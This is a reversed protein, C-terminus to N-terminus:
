SKPSGLPQLNKQTKLSILGSQNSDSIYRKKVFWKSQQIDFSKRIWLIAQRRLTIGTKNIKKCLFCVNVQKSSKTPAAWVRGRSYSPNNRAISNIGFSYFIALTVPLATQKVVGPWERNVPVSESTRWRKAYVKRYQWARFWQNKLSKKLHKGWLVSGSTYSLWQIKYQIASLPHLKYFTGRIQKIFAIFGRNVIITFRGHRITDHVLKRRGVQEYM